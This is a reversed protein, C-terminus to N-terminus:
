SEGFLLNDIGDPLGLTSSRDAIERPLQADTLGCELGPFLFVRMQAHAFEAPQALHFFFIGSEFPQDRIEREILVHQRLGQSFFNSARGGGPVRGTTEHSTEPSNHAPRDTPM